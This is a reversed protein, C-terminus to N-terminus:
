NEENIDGACFVCINGRSTLSKFTKDYKEHCVKCEFQVDYHNLHTIKEEEIIKNMSNKGLKKEMRCWM